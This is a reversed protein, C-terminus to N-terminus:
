KAIGEVRGTRRTSTSRRPPFPLLSTMGAHDLSIVQLGKPDALSSKALNSVMRSTPPSGAVNDYWSSPIVRLRANADGWEGRDELRDPVPHVLKALVLTRSQTFYVKDPHDPVKLRGLTLTRKGVRPHWGDTVSVM